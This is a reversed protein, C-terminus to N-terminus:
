NEKNSRLVLFREQVTDFSDELISMKFSIIDIKEKRIMIIFFHM